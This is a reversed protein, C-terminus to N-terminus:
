KLQIWVTDTRWYYIEIECHLRTTLMFVIESSSEGKEVNADWFALCNGKKCFGVGEKPLNSGSPMYKIDGQRWIKADQDEDSDCCNFLMFIRIGVKLPLAIASQLNAFNDCEGSLEQHM